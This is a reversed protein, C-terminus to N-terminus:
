NCYMYVYGILPNVTISRPRTLGTVIVKPYRGDLRSMVIYGRDEAVWYLNDAIWDVAMGTLMMLDNLRIVMVM